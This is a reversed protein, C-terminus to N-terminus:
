ESSLVPRPRQVSDMTDLAAERVDPSPDSTAVTNLVALSSSGFNELALVAEIRVDHDRDELSKICVNWLRPLEDIIALESIAYRREEPNADYLATEVLREVPDPELAEVPRKRDELVLESMNRAPDISQASERGTVQKRSSVSHGPLEKAAGASDANLIRGAGNVEAIQDLASGDTLWLFAVCFFGLFLAAITLKSWM